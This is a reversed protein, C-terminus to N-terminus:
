SVPSVTGLAERLRHALESKRCPKTLVIAHAHARGQDVLADLAYGSTFVV